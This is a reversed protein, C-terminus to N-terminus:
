TTLHITGLLISPGIGTYLAAKGIAHFLLALNSIM